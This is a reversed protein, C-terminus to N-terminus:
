LQRQRHRSRPPQPHDFSRRALGFVAFALDLDHASGPQRKPDIQGDPKEFVVGHQPKNTLATHTPHASRCTAGRLEDCRELARPNGDVMRDWGQFQRLLANICANIAEHDFAGLAPTELIRLLDGRQDQKLGDALLHIDRQDRRASDAVTSAHRGGKCQTSLRDLHPGPKHASGLARDM